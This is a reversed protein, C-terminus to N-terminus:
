EYIDRIELYSLGSTEQIQNIKKNFQLLIYTNYSYRLYLFLLLLGFLTPFLFFLKEGFQNESKGLIFMLIYTSWTGVNLFLVWRAFKTKKKRERHLNEQEELNVELLSANLHERLEKEHKTSISLFDTGVKVKSLDFSFYFYDKKSLIDKAKLLLNKFPQPMIFYILLFLMFPFMPLLIVIETALDSAFDTNISFVFFLTSCIMLVVLVTMVTEWAVIKKEVTMKGGSSGPKLLIVFEHSGDVTWVRVLFKMLETQKTNISENSALM